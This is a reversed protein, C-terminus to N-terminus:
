RIITTTAEGKPEGSIGLRTKRKALEDPAAGRKEAEALYETAASADKGGSALDCLRLWPEPNDPYVETARKLYDYARRPQRVEFAIEALALLSPKGTEALAAESELYATAADWLGTGACARGLEIWASKVDEPKPPPAACEKLFLDTEKMRARVFGMLVWVSFDKPTARMLRDLVYAAQLSQGRMALSQARMKMAAPDAADKALAAAAAQEMGRVRRLTEQVNRLAGQLPSDKQDRVVRQLLPAAGDLDGISLLTTAYRALAEDPLPELADARRCYEIARSADELTGSAGAKDLLMSALQFTAQRNDCDRRLVNLFTALAEDGNGQAKLALGLNQLAEVNQPELELARRLHQEADELAEAAAADSLDSARALYANGLNREIAASDPEREAFHTWLTVADQRVINRV